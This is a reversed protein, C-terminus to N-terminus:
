SKTRILSGIIAGVVASPVAILVVARGVEDGECRTDPDSCFAALFVGTAAAGVLGGILLGTMTHSHGRSDLDLRPLSAAATAALSLSTEAPQGLRWNPLPPALAQAALLDTSGVLLAALLLGRPTARASM